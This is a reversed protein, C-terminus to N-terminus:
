KHQMFYAERRARLEDPTLQRHPSEILQPQIQPSSPVSSSNFSPPGANSNYTNLDYRVPRYGDDRVRSPSAPMNYHPSIPLATTNQNIIGSAAAFSPINSSPRPQNTIDHRMPLPIHNPHTPPPIYERMRPTLPIIGSAYPNAQPNEEVDCYERVDELTMERFDPLIDVDFAFKVATEPEYGPMPMRDAFFAANPKNTFLNEFIIIKEEKTNNMYEDINDIGPKLTELAKHIFRYIIVQKTQGIRNVRGEGQEELKPNWDASAFIVENFHQMNLGEASSLINAFVLCRQGNAIYYRTRALIIDREEASTEGNLRFVRFGANEGLIHSYANLAAQIRDAEEYFHIFVITSRNESAMTYLLESIMEIKSEGRTWTPLHYSSHRNNHIRIYMDISASLYRLTNIKVLPNTEPQIDRYETQMLNYRPNSVGFSQGAALEYFQQEERTKYIVEINHVIPKTSPFNILQRLVPHLDDGTRRFLYKQISWALWRDDIKVPLPIGIWKYLAVLDSKRNQIPTGTAAIKFGIPSLKLRSLRNYKLTKPRTKNRDMSITVGNRLTHSEDAAIIDFEFWILPTLEPIYDSLPETKELESAPVVTGNQIQDRVPPYPKIAHYSTVIITNAHRNILYEYPIEDSLKVFIDNITALQAHSDSGYYVEWGPLSAIAERLWQFITAKPAVILSRHRKLIGILYIIEKTKGVGMKDGNVFGECTEARKIGFRLFDVQHPYVPLFRKSGDYNKPYEFYDNLDLNM